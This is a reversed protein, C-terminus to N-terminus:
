SAGRRLNGSRSSTTRTRGEAGESELLATRTQRRITHLWAAVEMPPSAPSLDSAHCDYGAQGEYRWTAAGDEHWLYALDPAGFTTPTDHLALFPGGGDDRISTPIELEAAVASYAQKIHEYTPETDESM